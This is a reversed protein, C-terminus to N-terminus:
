LDGDSFWGVGGQQAGAHPHGSRARGGRLKLDQFTVLLSRPSKAGEPAASRNRPVRQGDSNM